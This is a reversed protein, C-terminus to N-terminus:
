ALRRAASGTQAVEGALARLGPRGGEDTRLGRHDTLALAVHPLGSASWAESLRGPPSALTLAIAREQLPLALGLLSREAGWVQTSSSVVLVRTPNGAPAERRADDVTTM